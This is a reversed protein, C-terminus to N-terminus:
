VTLIDIHGFNNYPNCTQVYVPTKNLSPLTTNIKNEQINTPTSKIDLSVPDVIADKNKYVSLSTPLATKDVVPISDKQSLLNSFDMKTGDDFILDTPPPFHKTDFFYSLKLKEGSDKQVIYLDDISDILRDKERRFFIDDQNLGRLQIHVGKIKDGGALVCVTDNGDGEGWIVTTNYAALIDNDRKNGIITQPTTSYSETVLRSIM